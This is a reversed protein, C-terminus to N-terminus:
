RLRGLVLQALAHLSAGFVLWAVIHLPDGVTGNVTPVLIGAGMAAVGLNNLATAFLRVRDNHPDV